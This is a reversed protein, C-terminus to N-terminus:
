SVPEGQKQETEQKQAEASGPKQAIVKVATAGAEGLGRIHPKIWTQKHLERGVGYPQNRWHGVVWHAKVHSRLIVEAAERLYRPPTVYFKITRVKPPGGRAEASRQEHAHSPDVERVSIRTPAKPNLGREVMMQSVIETARVVSELPASACFSPLASAPSPDPAHEKEPKQAEAGGRMQAEAHGEIVDVVVHEGLEVTYAAFPVGVPCELDAPLTPTNLVDIARVLTKSHDHGDLINKFLDLLVEYEYYFKVSHEQIIKAEEKSLMELKARYGAKKLFIIDNYYSCHEEAMKVLDDVSGTSIDSSVRVLFKRIEDTAAVPDDDDTAQDLLAALEKSRDSESRCVESLMFTQVSQGARLERVKKENENMETNKFSEPVKMEAINKYHKSVDAWLDSLKGLVGSSTEFIVKFAEWEPPRRWKKWTLIRAETPIAAFIRFDTESVIFRHKIM